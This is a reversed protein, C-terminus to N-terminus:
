AVRARDRRRLRHRLGAHAVFVAIFPVYANWLAHGVGAFSVAIALLVVLLLTLSAAVTRARASASYGIFGSPSFATSVAGVAAIWMLMATAEVAGYWDNLPRYNLALATAGSVFYLALGFYISHCTQRTLRLAVLALLALGACVFYPERWGNRHVPRAFALYLLFVGLPMAELVHALLRLVKRPGTLMTDDSRTWM